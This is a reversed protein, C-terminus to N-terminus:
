KIELKLQSPYFSIFQNDRLIKTADKMRIITVKQEQAVTALHCLAGGNNVILMKVKGLLNVYKPSASRAVVIDDKDITRFDTKTDILRVAGSTVWRDEGDSLIAVSDALTQANM